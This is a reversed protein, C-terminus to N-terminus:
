GFLLCYKIFNYYIKWSKDGYGGAPLIIIPVNLQKSYNLVELDRKLMIEETLNMDCLSDSEYPDSGALYFILDPRFKDTIFNLNEKLVKLYEEGSIDSKVKIDLSSVAEDYDWQVAHVSFTFVTEDFKFISKNGNGQHYDLDIILVNEAKYEKKLKKIAIAVDNIPCFGEGRNKLAHHFGGSFNFSPKKNKLATLAGQYTGGSIYRFVNFADEDFETLYDTNLVEQLNLPRKIWNLYEETHVLLIDSDNLPEPTIIDKHKILKDKKLENIIKLFKYTDFGRGKGEKLFNIQYEFSYFLNAKIGFIFRPFFNKRDLKKLLSEPM